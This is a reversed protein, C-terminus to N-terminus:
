GAKVARQLQEQKKLGRKSANENYEHEYNILSENIVANGDTSVNVIKSCYEINPLKRSKANLIVCRNGLEEVIKPHLKCFSVQEELLTEREHEDLDSSPIRISTVSDTSVTSNEKNDTNKGTGVIEMMIQKKDSVFVHIASQGTKNECIYHSGTQKADFVIEASVDYGFLQMVDDIQERIFKNESIAKSKEVLLSTENQLEEISSFRYKRKPVVKIPVTKSSNLLELYSIYEAYYDQYIDDFIAINKAVAAKTISYEIAAAEFSNKIEFATKYVNNAIALLAKLDSEQISESNVLEEIESLIQSAREKVSLEIDSHNVRDLKVSFDFDEAAKTEEIEASFNISTLKNQIELQKNYDSIREELPKVESYYDAMVSETIKALKQSYAFIDDPEAPVDFELAKILQAKYSTKLKNLKQMTLTMEDANKINQTISFLHKNIHDIQMKAASIETNLKETEERIKRLREQRQRELEAKLRRELEVQDIKPGSM